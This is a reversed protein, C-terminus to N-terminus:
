RTLGRSSRRSDLFPSSARSRRGSSLSSRRSARVSEDIRQQAIVDNLTALEVVGEKKIKQEMKNLAASDEQWKQEYEDREQRIDEIITILDQHEKMASERTKGFASKWKGISNRLMENWDELEAVKTELGSYGEMGKRIEGLKEKLLEDEKIKDELHRQLDEAEAEAAKLKQRLTGEREEAAVLERSLDHQAGAFHESERKLLALEQRLANCNEQGDVNATDLETLLATKRHNEDTLAEVETQYERMQNTTNRVERELHHVEQELDDKSQQLERIKGQLQHQTVHGEEKEADLAALSATTRRNENDLDAFAEELDTVTKQLRHKQEHAEELGKELDRTIRKEQSVEDFAMDRELKIEEIKQQLKVVEAQADERIGQEIAKIKTELAKYEVNVADLEQELQENKRSLKAKEENGKDEVRELEDIRRRLSESERQYDDCDCELESIRRRIPRQGSEAAEADRRYEALKKRDNRQKVLVNDLEEKLTDVMKYARELEANGADRHCELNAKAKELKRQKANCDDLEDLLQANKRKLHSIENQTMESNGTSEGRRKSGRNNCQKRHCQLTANATELESIRRKLCAFEDGNTHGTRSSKLKSNMARLDLIERMACDIEDFLSKEVVADNMKRHYLIENKERLSSIECKARDFEDKAVCDDMTNYLNQILFEKEALERKLNEM